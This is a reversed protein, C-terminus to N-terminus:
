ALARVLAAILFVTLASSTAAFAAIVPFLLVASSSSAWDASAVIM